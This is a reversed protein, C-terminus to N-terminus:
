TQFKWGQKGFMALNFALIDKFSMGGYKKHMSLKEM